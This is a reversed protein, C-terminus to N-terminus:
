EFKMPRRQGVVLPMVYKFSEGDIPTSSPIQYHYQKKFFTDYYVKLHHHSSDSGVYYYVQNKGWVAQLAEKTTEFSAPGTVAKAAADYAQNHQVFASSACGNVVWFCVLVAFGTVKCMAMKKLGSNLFEFM